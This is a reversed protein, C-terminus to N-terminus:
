PLYESRLLCLFWCRRPTEEAGEHACAHDRCPELCTFARRWIQICRCQQMAGSRYDILSATPLPSFCAVWGPHTPRHGPPPRRALRALPRGRHRRRGRRRHRGRRHDPHRSCVLACCSMQCKWCLISKMRGTCSARMVPQWGCRIGVDSCPILAQPSPLM